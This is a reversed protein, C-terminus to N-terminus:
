VLGAVHLDRPRSLVDVYSHTDVGAGAPQQWPRAPEPQATRPLGTFDKRHAVVVPVQAARLLRDLTTRQLWRRLGRASGAGVVVLDADVDVALQHLQRSPTGVRTHFVLPYGCSDAGIRVAMVDRVFRELQVTVRDLRESVHRISRANRLHPPAPVVYGFHLAVWLGLRALELAEWIAYASAESFNVGVVIRFKHNAEGM